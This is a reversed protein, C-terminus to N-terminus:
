RRRRTTTRAAPKKAPAPDDLGSFPDDPDDLKISPRGQADAADRNNEQCIYERMEWDPQLQYKQVMVYPETYLNPDTLTIEDTLVNGERWIREHFRTKDTAHLGTTVYIQPSFGITDVVLTDGEWHGVSSGNYLPDPDDPLPRDLYIRRM